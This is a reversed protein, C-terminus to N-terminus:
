LWGQGEQVIIKRMAEIWGPHDNLCPCRHLAEGGAHLFAENAERGIEDITELCDVTFGPLAVFVRKRGERALKKLVEETYPKLWPERGFLSQFSQTWSERPWGLQQVLRATTRKVQTAYPDGQRAYRIPIGHFSILFHDPRWSLRALEDRIVTAMADVYAPHDYYPPVIRLAPVRREKMLAHFLADTASATTTASYQPYMPLVILREMGQEIMEHVVSALPPNGVQMGFRVVTGPLAAQLLEAQRRTYHLLPSGTAQNWILQYKAASRKPRLLLILRLILWWKFRPPFIRDLFRWRSPPLEIVRPDGLFQRLYRRLAPTTPADPTGLQVLLVGTSSM